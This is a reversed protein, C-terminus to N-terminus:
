ELWKWAFLRAGAWPTLGMKREREWDYRQLWLAFVIASLWFLVFLPVHWWKWLNEQRLGIWIDIRRTKKKTSVADDAVPPDVFWLYAREREWDFYIRGGPSLLYKTLNKPYIRRPLFIETIESTRPPTVDGEAAASSAPSAPSRFRYSFESTQYSYFLSMPFGSTAVAYPRQSM